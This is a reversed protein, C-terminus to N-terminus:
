FLVSNGIHTEIFLLFTLADDPNTGGFLRLPSKPRRM